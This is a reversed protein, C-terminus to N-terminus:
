FQYQYHSADKTHVYVPKNLAEAQRKMDQSGPTNGNPQLIIFCDAYEAMEKNRRMGAKTDYRGFDNEKIVADPHSLDNWKAPFAKVFLGQAKGWDRGLRDAGKCDGHVVETIKFGAAKIAAILFDMDNCDRDGAICCKM